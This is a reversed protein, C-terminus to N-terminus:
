PSVLYVGPLLLQWARSALRDEFQSRSLGHDLAQRRSVVYDQAALLPLLELHTALSRRMRRGQWRGPWRIPAWDCRNIATQVPWLRNFRGHDQRARGMPLTRPM